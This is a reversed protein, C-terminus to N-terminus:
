VPRRPQARLSPTGTRCAPMLSRGSQHREGSFAGMATRDEPDRSVLQFQAPANDTAARARQNEVAICGQDFRRGFRRRNNGIDNSLRRRGLRCDGVIHVTRRDVELDVEAVLWGGYRGRSGRRGLGLWRRGSRRWNDPAARGCGSGLRMRGCRVVDGQGGHGACEGGHGRMVGRRRWCRHRWGAQRQWGGFLWAGDRRWRWRGFRRLSGGRQLGGCRRLGLQRLASGLLRWRRDSGRRWSACCRRRGRARQDVDNRGVCSESSGGLWRRRQHGFWM